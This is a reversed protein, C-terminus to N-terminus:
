ASPASPEAAKEEAPAPPAADGGEAPKVEEIVKGGCGSDCGGCGSDCGGCGSDCGGCGKHRRHHKRGCGSNCGSDCGSDCSSECCSDCVPAAECCKTKQECCQTECAPQCCSDHHHRHHRAFGGFSGGCRRHRAEAQSELGVLIVAFAALGLTVRMLNRKM